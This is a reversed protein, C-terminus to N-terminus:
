TKKVWKIINAIKLTYHQRTDDIKVHKHEDLKYTSNIEYLSNQLDKAIFYYINNIGM